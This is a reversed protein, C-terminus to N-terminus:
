IDQKGHKNMEKNKYEKLKEKIEKVEKKLIRAQERAQLWRKLKNM